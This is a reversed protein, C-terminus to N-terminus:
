HGLLRLGIPKGTVTFGTYLSLRERERLAMEDM